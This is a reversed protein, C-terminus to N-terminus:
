ALYYPFAAITDLSMSGDALCKNNECLVLTQNGAGVSCGDAVGTRLTRIVSRRPCWTCVHHESACAPLVSLCM